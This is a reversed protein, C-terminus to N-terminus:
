LLSLLALTQMCYASLNAATPRCHMDSNNNKKSSM